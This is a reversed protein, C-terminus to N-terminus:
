ENACVECKDVIFNDQSLKKLSASHEIVRSQHNFLTFHPTSDIYYSVKSCTDANSWVEYDAGASRNKLFKIQALCRGVIKRCDCSKDPTNSREAAARAEWNQSEDFNADLGDFAAKGEANKRAQSEEWARRAEEAQRQLEEQEASRRAARDSEFAKLASGAAELANQYQSTSNGPMRGDAEMGCDADGCSAALGLSWPYSPSFRLYLWAFQDQEHDNLYRQPIRFMKATSPLDGSPATSFPKALFQM